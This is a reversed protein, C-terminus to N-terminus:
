NAFLLLSLRLPPRVSNFEALLVVVHLAELNPFRKAVEEFIFSPATPDFSIVSLRKLAARSGHLADLTELSTGSFLPVSAMSIPRGKAVTEIVTPGAHIANFQTLSPLATPQLVFDRFNRRPTFLSSPDGVIDGVFNPSDWHETQFGRLTLQGISPQTNLFQALSANCQMSTSFVRLHFTCGEFIWVPSNVKPLDLILTTLATTCRLCQRLLRYFNATLTGANSINLELSRVYRHLNPQALIRKLLPICSAPKNVVLARYLLRVAPDQLSRNACLVPILQSASLYVLILELVEAPLKSQLTPSGRTSEPGNYHNTPRSIEHWKGRSLTGTHERSLESHNSNIISENLTALAKIKSHFLDQFTEMSRPNSTTATSSLAKIEGSAKMASLSPM